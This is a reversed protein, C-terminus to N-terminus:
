SHDGPVGADAESPFVSALRHTWTHDREARRRAGEGISRWDIEGSNIKTLLELAEDFSDYLLIEKGEDFGRELEPLRRALHCMGMMTAEYERLRVKHCLKNTHEQRVESFGISVGHESALRVFEEDSVLRRDRMAARRVMRAAQVPSTWKGNRLLERGIGRVVAPVTHNVGYASVPIRQACEDLFWQREAYLSGVFLLGPRPPTALPRFIYPDSAMPVYQLKGPFRASLEQFAEEESCLTSDFFAISEEFRHPQDLLNLPYNLLRLCRRRLAERVPPRLFVDHFMGFCYDFKQDPWTEDLFRVIGTVFPSDDAYPADGGHIVRKFFSLNLTAVEAGLELLGREIGRLLGNAYDASLQGPGYLLAIRKGGLVLAM